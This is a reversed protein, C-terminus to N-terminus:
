LIIWNNFNKCPKLYFIFINKKKCINEVQPLDFTNRKKRYWNKRVLIESIQYKELYNKELSKFVEMRNFVHIHCDQNRQKIKLASIYTKGVKTWRPMKHICWLVGIVEENYYCTLSLRWKPLEATLQLAICNLFLYNRLSLCTPTSEAAPNLVMM